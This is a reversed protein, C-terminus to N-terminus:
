TDYITVYRVPPTRVGVAEAAGGGGGDLICKPACVIFYVIELTPTKAPPRSDARKAYSLRKTDAASIRM